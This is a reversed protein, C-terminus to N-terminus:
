PADAEQDDATDDELRVWSRADADWEVPPEDHGCDCIGRLHKRATETSTQFETKLQNLTAGSGGFKSVSQDAELLRRRMEACEPPGIASSGVAVPGGRGGNARRNELIDQLRQRDADTLGVGDTGPRGDTRSM